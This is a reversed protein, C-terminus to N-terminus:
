NVTMQTITFYTHSGLQWFVILNRVGNTIVWQTADGYLGTFTPTNTGNAIIAVGAINGDVPNAAVTIALNTSITYDNYNANPYTALDVTGTFSLNNGLKNAKTAISARLVADDQKTSIKLLTDIYASGGGPGVRFFFCGEIYWPYVKITGTPRCIRINYITWRSTTTTDTFTYSTDAPSTWIKRTKLTTFNDNAHVKGQVYVYYTGTGSLKKVDWEISYYRQAGISPDFMVQCNFATDNQSVTDSLYNAVSKYVNSYVFYHKDASIIRTTTPITAQIRILLILCTILLILKKM